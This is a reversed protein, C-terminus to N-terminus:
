SILDSQAVRNLQLLLRRRLVVLLLVVLLRLQQPPRDTLPLGGRVVHRGRLRMRGRLIAVAASRVGLGVEGLLLDASRSCGGEGEEAWHACARADEM